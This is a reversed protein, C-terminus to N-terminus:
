PSAPANQSPPALASVSEASFAKFCVTPRSPSARVLESRTRLPDQTPARCPTLHGIWTSTVGTAKQKPRRRKGTFWRSAEITLDARELHRATRRCPYNPLRHSAPAAGAVTAFNTEVVAVPRSARSPTPVPGCPRSRLGSVLRSDTSSSQDRRATLLRLRKPAPRMVKSTRDGSM